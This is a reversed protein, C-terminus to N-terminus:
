CLIVMSKNTTLKVVVVYIIHNLVSLAMRGGIALAEKVIIHMHIVGVRV